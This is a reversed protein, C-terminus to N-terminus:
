AASRAERTGAGGGAGGDAGAGAGRRGRAGSPAQTRYREQEGPPVLAPLLTAWLAAVRSALEATSLGAGWAGSIGCVVAALLARPGDDGVGDRLRGAERARELLRAAERVWAAHLDAVPPRRGACEVTIRFGARVVPDERLGRALRHTLDILGQVPPTGAADLARVQRRLLEHGQEQVADALGDKSGFHFYLAGKTMGAAQAIRGLTADAYGHADFMEAAARVLRRRSRESRAQM